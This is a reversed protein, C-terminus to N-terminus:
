IIKVVNNQSIYFTQEKVVEMGFANKGSIVCTAEWGSKSGWTIERCKKVEANLYRNELYKSVAHVTGDWPSVSPTEGHKEVFLGYQKQRELYEKYRKKGYQLTRALMKKNETEKKALCNEVKDLFSPWKHGNEYLNLSVMHDSILENCDIPKENEIKAVDSSKSKINLTLVVLGLGVIFFVFSFIAFIKLIKKMKDGLFSLPSKEGRM